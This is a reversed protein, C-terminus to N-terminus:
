LIPWNLYIFIVLLILIVVFTPESNSRTNLANNIAAILRRKKDESFDKAADELENAMLKKRQDSSLAKLNTDIFKKADEINKFELLKPDKLVQRKTRYFVRIQNGGVFLLLILFAIISYKFASAIINSISRNTEKAEMEIPINNILNIEKIGKIRSIINPLKSSSGNLYIALRVYDGPNLLNFRIYIENTTYNTSLKIFLNNPNISVPIAAIIEIEKSMKIIPEDIIDDSIIPTNGTNVLMCDMRTLNTIPKGQYIISFDKFIPDAPFLSNSSEIRFELESKHAYYDWAIPSLISVITLFLGIIVFIDKASLEM